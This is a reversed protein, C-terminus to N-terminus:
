GEEVLDVLELVPDSKRGPEDSGCVPQPVRGVQRVRARWASGAGTVRVEWEDPAPEDVVAAARAGDLWGWGVRALIRAEVVQAAPHTVATSGRYHGILDAPPRSRAVIAALLDDDLWAWATGSPLVVATPAFRHGGLHGSRWLAVDPGLAVQQALATGMSGCCRDRAGHGCILVDTGPAAHAGGIMATVTAPVEAPDVTAAHRRYGSFAGDGAVHVVVRVLSSPPTSARNQADVGGLEVPTADADPAVAHLRATPALAALAQHAPLTGVDAPWPLPTDVLVHVPAAVATGVAALGQARAQPSCRLDLSM